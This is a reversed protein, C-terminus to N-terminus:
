FPAAKPTQNSAHVLAPFCAALLEIPELFIPLIDGWPSACPSCLQLRDRLDHWCENDATSGTAENVGVSGFDVPLRGVGCFM